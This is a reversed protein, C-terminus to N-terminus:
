PSLMRYQLNVTATNAKAQLISANLRGVSFEGALLKLFYDTGAAKVGIQVYNTEDMNRLFYVGGAVTGGIVLDEDSTGIAQVGGAGVQSALDINITPPIYQENFNTATITLGVQMKIENAM